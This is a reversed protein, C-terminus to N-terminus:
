QTVCSLADIRARNTLADVQSWELACRMRTEFARLILQKMEQYHPRNSYLCAWSVARLEPVTAICLPANMGSDVRVQAIVGTHTQAMAAWPLLWAAVLLYKRV